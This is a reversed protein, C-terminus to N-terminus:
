KRHGWPGQEMEGQGMTLNDQQCRGQTFLQGMDVAMEQWTSQPHLQCATDATLCHAGVAAM